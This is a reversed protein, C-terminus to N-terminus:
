KDETSNKKNNQKEKSGDQKTIERKPKTRNVIDFEKIIKGEKEEVLFKVNKTFRNNENVQFYDAIDKPLRLVLNKGDWSLAVEREIIEGDGIHSLLREEEKKTLEGM